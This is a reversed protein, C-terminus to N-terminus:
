LKINDYGLIFSLNIKDPSNLPNAQSENNKAVLFIINQM